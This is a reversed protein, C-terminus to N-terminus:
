GEKSCEKLLTILKPFNINISYLKEIKSRGARGLKLRLEKSEILLSLKNVWDTKNIALFGNVGDDIVEKNMGVNSAVAPVGTAMYQIVKFACKGKAWEDDPMPMIGIDFQQLDSIENDLSWEKNLLREHRINDFRGGIIRIELNDYKTLLMRFVDELDKLYEATSFSGMWGMIVKNGAIKQRYANLAKYKDTDISTPIVVSHKNLGSVYNKLFGNGAIVHDSVRVIYDTKVPKKLYVADDFDFIIKKSLKRFLWEFVCDKTPFAERHIFVIDYRFSLLVDLLRKLSAFALYFFKKLFNGKKRLIFYLERNYFPRLKYCVGEKKLLPLYQEIRFRNSPGETPYPVIFLIKM